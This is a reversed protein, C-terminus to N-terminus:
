ELMDDDMLEREIEEMQVIDAAESQTPATNLLEDFDNNELFTTITESVCCTIFSANNEYFTQQLHLLCDVATKDITAVNSLDFVVNKIETELFRLLTNKIDDAMTASFDAEKPTIVHFREKTDIKVQM